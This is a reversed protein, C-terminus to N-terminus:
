LCAVSADFCDAFLVSFRNHAGMLFTLPVRGLRQSYWRFRAAANEFCAASANCSGELGVASVRLVQQTYRWLVSPVRRVHQPYRRILQAQQPNERTAELNTIPAELDM